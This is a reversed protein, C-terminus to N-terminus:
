DIVIGTKVPRASFCNWSGSMRGAIKDARGLEVVAFVTPGSGTMLVFEAGAIELARRVDSIEPYLEEAVPQLDNHLLREVGRSRELTWWLTGKRPTGTLTKSFNRFITATSVSFGPNVLVLSYDTPLQVPTLRQGIGEGVATGGILFFPVDAGLTAALEHLDEDTLDLGYLARIGLLAAAADSSGGGMGAAVPINKELRIAAPLTRGTKQEVCRVARVILNSDHELDAFGPVELSIESRAKRIILRDFLDVAQLVTELDHYGDDRRALVRLHLNIKAPAHVRLM